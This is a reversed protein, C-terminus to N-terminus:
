ADAGDPKNREAKMTRFSIYEDVHSAKQTPRTRQLLPGTIGQCDSLRQPKRCTKRRTVSTQNLCVNGATKKKEDNDRTKKVSLHHRRQTWDNRPTKKVELKMELKFPVTDLGRKNRVLTYGWTKTAGKMALVCTFRQGIFSDEMRAKVAEPCYERQYLIKEVVAGTM